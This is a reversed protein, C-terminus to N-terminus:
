VDSRRPLTYGPPIRVVGGFAIYPEHMKARRHTEDQWRPCQGGVRHYAIFCVRCVQWSTIVRTRRLEAILPEVTEGTYPRRPRKAM